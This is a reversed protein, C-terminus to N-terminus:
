ISPSIKFFKVLSSKVRSLVVDELIRMLQFGCVSFDLPTSPRVNIRVHVSAAARGIITGTSECDSHRVISYRSAEM